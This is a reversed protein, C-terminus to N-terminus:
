VKGKIRQDFEKLRHSINKYFDYRGLLFQLVYHDIAKVIRLGLVCTVLVIALVLVVKKTGEPDGHFYLGDTNMGFFGVILNLPLFVGSIVTLTLITKNLRDAKISDYYNHLSDLRNSLTLANTAQFQIGEEIDKYEDRWDHFLPESKKFFERYVMLNRSYYNEIKSLDKKLDFWIDLFYGPIARDFLNEELKEIENSYGTVIRRNGVYIQELHALLGVFGKPLRHLQSTSRDWAYVEKLKLIYGSATFSLTDQAVEMGRLLLIKFDGYDEYVSYPEAQSLIERVEEISHPIVEELTAIKSPKAM